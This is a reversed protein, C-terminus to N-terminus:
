EQMFGNAQLITKTKFYVEEILEPCIQPRNRPDNKLICNCDMGGFREAFDEKLEAILEPIMHAIAEERDFLTMMCAAGTIAGCLLGCRVGSCLAAMTEILQPNEEGVAELGMIVLVQSCCYGQSLLEAIRQQEPNM